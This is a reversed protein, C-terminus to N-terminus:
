RAGRGTIVVVITDVLIFLDLLLNHNKVYYLDYQLKEITDEVTAGYQYRVQAWGTIGPKVSHRVAYYPIDRTLSEVFFPQEPRPGVLSMEGSLVNFLQPLEDIRTKRIVKGVRTIRRDDEVTWSPKSDMEMDVYMSRLKVINFTKGNLGVREQRYLIPGRSDLAILIATIFMVPMALVILITAFLIDCFRKFAVRTASQNFGGGFIFWSANPYDVNIKGLTQEFRSAADVVKIGLLKCDLLERLPMSGGRREGLAVIIENVQLDMVTQMLPGRRFLVDSGAAAQQEENPGPVYGVLEVGSNASKLAAGVLRAAPGSGFILIKHRDARQGAASRREVFVRRVIIASVGMMVVLIAADGSLADVPMLSYTMVLTAVLAIAARACSQLLSCGQAQRYLGALLNIFLMGLALALGLVSVLPVVDWPRDVQGIIVGATLIFLLSFDSFLGLMTRKSYYKDLMYKM